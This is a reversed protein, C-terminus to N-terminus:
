WGSRQRAEAMQREIEAQAKNKLRTARPNGPYKRLVQKAADLAGSNTKSAYMQEGMALLSESQPDLKVDPVPAPAYEPAPSPRPATAVTERKPKNVTAPKVVTSKHEPKPAEAVPSPSNDTGTSEEAVSADPPALEPAAVVTAPTSPAAGVAVDTEGQAVAQAEASSNGLFWWYGGAASACFLLALAGVLPAHIKKPPLAFNKPAAPPPAPRARVTEHVIAAATATAKATNDEPPFIPELDIPMVSETEQPMASFSFGCKGCFKADPKLQNSCAPCSKGELSKDAPASCQEAPAVAVLGFNHGCKQCFKANVKNVTQCAACPKGQPDTTIPPPSGAQITSGCGRCFKAGEKNEAGCTLCKM